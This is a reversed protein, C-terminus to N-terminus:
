FFCGNVIVPWTATFSCCINMKLVLCICDFGHLLIIADRKITHNRKQDKKLVIFTGFSTPGSVLWFTVCTCFRSSKLAKLYIYIHPSCKMGKWSWKSSRVKIKNPWGIFIWCTVDSSSVFLLVDMDPYTIISFHQITSSHKDTETLHNM